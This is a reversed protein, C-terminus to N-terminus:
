ACCASSCQKTKLTLDKAKGYKEAWLPFGLPIRSANTEAEQCKIM